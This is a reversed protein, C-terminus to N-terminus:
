TVHKIAEQYWKEIFRHLYKISCGTCKSNPYDKGTIKKYVQLYEKHKAATRGGKLTLKAEDLLEM